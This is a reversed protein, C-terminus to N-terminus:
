NKGNKDGTIHCVRPRTRDPIKDGRLIADVLLCNDNMSYGKRALKDSVQQYYMTLNVIRNEREAPNELGKNQTINRSFATSKHYIKHRISLIM